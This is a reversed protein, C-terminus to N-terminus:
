FLNLTWFCLRCISTNCIITTPLYWWNQALIWGVGAEDTNADHIYDHGKWAYVKIKGINENSNGALPDGDEITEIYGEKLPIGAVNYNTKSPDSSQGLEAM